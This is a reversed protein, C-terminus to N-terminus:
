TVMALDAWSLILSFCIFSISNNRLAFSGSLSLSSVEWLRPERLVKIFSPVPYKPFTGEPQPCKKVLMQALFLVNGCEADM